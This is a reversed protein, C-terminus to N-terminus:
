TQQKSNVHSFEDTGIFNELPVTFHSPLPQFALYFELKEFTFSHAFSLNLLAIQYFFLSNFTNSGFNQSSFTFVLTFLYHLHFKTFCIYIKLLFNKIHLKSFCFRTNSFIDSIKHSLLPLFTFNQYSTKPLVYNLTETFKLFKPTTLLASPSAPGGRPAPISAPGGRPAPISASGSGTKFQVLYLQHAPWAAGFCL